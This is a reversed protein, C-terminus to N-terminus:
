SPVSQSRKRKAKSEEAQLVFLYKKSIIVFVQLIRGYSLQRISLAM